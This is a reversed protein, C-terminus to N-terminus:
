DFRSLANSSITEDNYARHAKRILSRIWNLEKDIKKFNLPYWLSPKCIVENGFQDHHYLRFKYLGDLSLIEVDRVQYFPIQIEYDGEKVYLNKSDYSVEKIKNLFANVRPYYGFLLGAFYGLAILWSFLTGNLGMTIFCIFLFVSITIVALIKYRKISSISLSKSREM